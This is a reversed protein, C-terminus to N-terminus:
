DSPVIAVPCAAHIAAYRSVSGLLMASFAGAGRSGVVLLQAGAAAQTVAVAPPGDVPDTDILLGPAMAAAAKAAAALARDRNNRISEAVTEIGSTQLPPMMRPLTDAASVIRLPAGHLRGERAAWEVASLSEASGDTAAVIPKTTM